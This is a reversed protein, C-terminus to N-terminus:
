LLLDTNFAFFALLSLLSRSLYGPVRLQVATLTVLTGAWCSSKLRKDGRM